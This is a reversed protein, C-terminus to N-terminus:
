PLGTLVIFGAETLKTLSKGQIGALGGKAIVWADLTSSFFLFESYPEGLSKVLQLLLKADAQVHQLQFFSRCLVRGSSLTTPDSVRQLRERSVGMGLDIKASQLQEMAVEATLIYSGSTNKPARSVHVQKELAMLSELVTENTHMPPISKGETPYALKQEMALQKVLTAHHIFDMAQHLSGHKYHSSKFTLDKHEDEKREQMPVKTASAKLKDSQGFARWWSEITAM